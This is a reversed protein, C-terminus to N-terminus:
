SIYLLIMLTLCSKAVSFFCIETASQLHNLLSVIFDYLTLSLFLFFPKFIFDAVLCMM